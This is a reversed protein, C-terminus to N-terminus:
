VGEKLNQEMESIAQDYGYERDLDKINYTDSMEPHKKKPILALIQQHALDFAEKEKKRQTLIDAYPNNGLSIVENTYVELIKRLNM